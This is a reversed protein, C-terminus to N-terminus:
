LRGKRIFIVLELLLLLALAGAFYYYVDVYREAGTGHEVITASNQKVIEILGALSADSNNVNLYQVGLEGAIKRLNEEDIRSVADEYNDYDYLYYHGERMKGGKETGYGLVAGTDVYKALSEFSQTRSTNTVEGDSFFFVITKRNEKQDSSQLLSEVDKFSVSPNSGSAYYSDPMAMLDMLDSIYQMDQTFPSLVHSSDDFSVLGFNSGALEDLITKVDKKVGEMRQQKGNYDLAWMSITSDVVFLVDLNKTAFEYDTEVMVPRLGIVFVLGYILSLRVMTAIKDGISIKNKMILVATAGVFLAVVLLMVGVSFIPRISM